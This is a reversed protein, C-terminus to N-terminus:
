NSLQDLFAVALVHVISITADFQKLHFPQDYLLTLKPFFFFKKLYIHDHQQQYLPCLNSFHTDPSYKPFNKIKNKARGVITTM